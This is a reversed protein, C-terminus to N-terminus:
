QAHALALTSQPVFGRHEPSVTQHGYGAWFHAMERPLVHWYQGAYRARIYQLFEEYYFAPYSDFSPPKDFEMYDPHTIVLAMGGHQALWDLKRRWIGIGREQMMV